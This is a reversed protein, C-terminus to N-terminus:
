LWGRMGTTFAMSYIFDFSGPFADSHMVSVKLIRHRFIFGVNSAASLSDM